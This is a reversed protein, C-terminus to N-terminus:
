NHQPLVVVGSFKITVDRLGSKSPRAEFFFNELVLLGENQGTIVVPKEVETRQMSERKCRNFFETLSPLPIKFKDIVKNPLKMLNVIVTPTITDVDIKLFVSDSIRHPPEMLARTSGFYGYVESLVIIEINPSALNLKVQSNKTEIAYSCAYSLEPSQPISHSQIVSQLSDIMEFAIYTCEDLSHTPTDLMDAIFETKPHSPIYDVDIRGFHKCITKTIDKLNDWDTSYAQQEEIVFTEIWNHFRTHLSVYVPKYFSIMTFIAFFMSITILKRYLMKGKFAFALTITFLWLWMGIAIFRLITLGYEDIRIYLAQLGYLLVVLFLFAYVHLWKEYKEIIPYAIIYTVISYLGFSLVYRGILNSAWM